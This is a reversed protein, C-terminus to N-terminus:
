LRYLYRCFADCSPRMGDAHGDSMDIITQYKEGHLDESDGAWYYDDRLRRGGHEKLLQNIQDKFYYIILWDRLEPSGICEMYERPEDFEDKMDLVADVLPIYIGRGEVYYPEIIGTKM